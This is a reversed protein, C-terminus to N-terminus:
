SEPNVTYIRTAFWDYLDRVFDWNQVSVLFSSDNHPGLIMKGDGSLYFFYGNPLPQRKENFLFLNKGIRERIAARLVPIDDKRIKIDLGNETIRRRALLRSIRERSTFEILDLSRILNGFAQLDAADDAELNMSDIYRKSQEPSTSLWVCPADSFNYVPLPTTDEQAKLHEQLMGAVKAMMGTLDQTLEVVPSAHRILCDFHETFDRVQVPDQVRVCKEGARDFMVMDDEGIIYFPYPTGEPHFLVDDTMYTNVFFDPKKKLFLLYEAFGVIMPEADSRGDWDSLLQEAYVTSGSRINEELVKEIGLSFFLESPLLLRLKIKGSKLLARRIMAEIPEPCSVAAASDGDEQACKKEAAAGNGPAANKGASGESASDGAGDEADSLMRLFSRVKEYKEFQEEGVREREYQRLFRGREETDNDPQLINLIKLFQVPTAMRKKGLIQYFTSRDIGTQRIVENKSIKRVELAEAFMDAINM